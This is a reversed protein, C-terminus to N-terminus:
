EEVGAQFFGACEKKKISLDSGRKENKKEKRLRTLGDKKYLNRKEGGGVLKHKKKEPESEPSTTLSGRLQQALCSCIGRKGWHNKEYQRTSRSKEM